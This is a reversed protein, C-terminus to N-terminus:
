ACSWQAWGYPRYYDNYASAVNAAADMIRRSLQFLGYHGNPNVSNPNGGSECFMVSFAKSTSWPYQAILGDWCSHAKAKRQADTMGSWSGTCGGAPAPAPAQATVVTTRTTSGKYTTTATSPRPRIRITTTTTPALTSSTSTTTTERDESAVRRRSRSVEVLSPRAAVAAADTLEPTRTSSPHDGMFAASVTLALLGM